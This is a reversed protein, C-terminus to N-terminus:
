LFHVAVTREKGGQAASAFSFQISEFTLPLVKAVGATSPTHLLPFLASRFQLSLHAWLFLSAAEKASSLTTAHPQHNSSSGPAVGCCYKGSGMHWGRWWCSCFDLAKSCGCAQCPWQRGTAWLQRCYGAKGTSHVLGFVTSQAILIKDADNEPQNRKNSPTRRRPYTLPCLPTITVATKHQLKPAWLESACYRRKAWARSGSSKRGTM